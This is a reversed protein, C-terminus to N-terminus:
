SWYNRQANQHYFNQIQHQESGVNGTLSSVGNGHSSWDENKMWNYSSNATNTPTTSPLTTNANNILNPSQSNQDSDLKPKQVHDPLAVGPHATPLYNTYAKDRYVNNNQLQSHATPPYHGEDKMRSFTTVQNIQVQTIQAQALAYNTELLATYDSRSYDQNYPAQPFMNCHQFQASRWDYQNETPYQATMPLVSLGLAAAASSGAASKRLRARRNSFWVQFTSCTTYDFM